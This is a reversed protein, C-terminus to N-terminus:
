FTWRAAVRIRPLVSPPHNPAFLEHIFTFNGRVEPVVTLHRSISVPIDLGLTPVLYSRHGAFFSRAATEKMTVSMATAGVVFDIGARPMLVVHMGVLGSWSTTESSISGTTTENIPSRSRDVELRLSYPGSFAVGGEIAFGPSWGPGGVSPADQDVQGAMGVFAAPSQAAATSVTGAVIFLAIAARM